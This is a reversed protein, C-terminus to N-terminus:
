ITQKPRHPRDVAYKVSIFSYICVHQQPFTNKNSRANNYTENTTMKRYKTFINYFCFTSKHVLLYYCVVSLRSGSLYHIVIHEATRVCYRLIVSLSDAIGMGACVVHLRTIFIWILIKVRQRGSNGYPYLQLVDQAL